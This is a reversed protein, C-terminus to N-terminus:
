SIAIPLRYVRIATEGLIQDREDQSLGALATQTEQWVKAYGGRVIAVPWDSGFMLREPGFLELAYDVYPVLEAASWRDAEGADLGSLKAYVNPAQAARRLLMGWPEFERSAIPPKGIHDIVIRLDPIREALSPVHELHRPLIGVYDFVLGQSALVQLGEIVNERVIWDPDPEVNVLHRVGVFKPERGLAELIRAAEEPRELPIWGVVGVIWAHAHAHTLLAENEEVGDAAEVTITARVGVAEMEPWLDHPQFSRRIPTFVPDDAYPPVEMWSTQYTGYLWFHQHADVIATV